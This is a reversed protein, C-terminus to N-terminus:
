PMVFLGRWPVYGRKPATMGITLLWGAYPLWWAMYSVAANYYIDERSIQLSRIIDSTDHFICHSIIYHDVPYPWRLMKFSLRNCKSVLCNYKAVPMKLSFLQVKFSLLQIKFSFLQIKFSTNQFEVTTNQLQRTTNPFEPNQRFSTNQFKWLDWEVLDGAWYARQPNEKQLVCASALALRAGKSGSAHAACCQAPALSCISSNSILWFGQRVAKDICDATGAFDLSSASDIRTLRFTNKQVPFISLCAASMNPFLLLRIVYQNQNKLVLMGGDPGARGLAEAPRLSAKASSNGSLRKHMM